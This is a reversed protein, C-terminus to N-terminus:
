IKRGRITESELTLLLVKLSELVSQAEPSADNVVSDAWTRLSALLVLVAAQTNADQADFRELAKGRVHELLTKLEKVSAQAQSPAEQPTPASPVSCLEQGSATLLVRVMARYLVQMDTVCMAEATEPTLGIEPMVIM